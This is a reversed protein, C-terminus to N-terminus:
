IARTRLLTACAGVLAEPAFPKAVHLNYGAAIAHSRDTAAAYATLAIAPVARGKGAALARVRRILEYGDLQPMGLDSVLLDIGAGNSQILRLAESASRALLVRAGHQALIERALEGSDADDDVVV